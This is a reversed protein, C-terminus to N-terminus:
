LEHYGQPYFQDTLRYRTSFQFPTGNTLVKLVSVSVRSTVNVGVEGGIDFSENVQGADTNVPFLRFESLPLAIALRIKYRM